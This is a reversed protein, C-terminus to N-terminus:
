STFLNKEGSPVQYCIGNAEGDGGTGQIPFDGCGTMGEIFVYLGSMLVGCQNVSPLNTKEECGAAINTSLTFDEFMIQPKRYVKKM